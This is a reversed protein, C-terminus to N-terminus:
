REEKMPKTVIKGKRILINNKFSDFHKYENLNIEHHQNYELQEAIESVGNPSQSEQEEQAKLLANMIKSM